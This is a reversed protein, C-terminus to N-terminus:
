ESSVSLQLQPEQPVSAVAFKKEGAPLFVQPVAIGLSDGLSRFLQLWTDSPTEPKLHMIRKM